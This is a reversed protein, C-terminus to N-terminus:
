RGLPDWLECRRLYLAATQIDPHTELSLKKAIDLLALRIHRHQGGIPARFLLDEGFDILLKAFKLLADADVIQVVEQLLRSPFHPMEIAM